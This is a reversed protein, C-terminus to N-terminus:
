AAPACDRCATCRVEGRLHAERLQAFRESSWGDILATLALDAMEWAEGARFRCASLKGDCTVHAETFLSWCPISPPMAWYHEDVYPLIAAELALSRGAQAPEPRVSSAYLGCPYGGEDRVRRAAQLNRIAERELGPARRSRSRSIRGQGLAFELSDLGADMCDLVRYPDALAGDTTLFAHRIGRAKAYGIADGLWECGFADDLCSLGLEEIGSDVMEGVLRTYLPWSIEGQADLPEIQAGLGHRDARAVLDIRAIRPPPPSRVLHSAPIRTVAEIRAAVGTAWPQPPLVISLTTM